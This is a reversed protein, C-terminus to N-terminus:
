PTIKAGGSQEALVQALFSALHANVLAPSELMAMHSTAPLIAMRAGPIRRQILRAASPPTSPDVEGALLLTPRRVEALRDTLDLAGVAEWLRAHVEPDDGLLTKTARDILDPRGRRTEPTFWREMSEAVVAAMGAGRLRRARDRMGARVQDPFESATGVLSLSAVQSPHELVFSQAIIGGVSIGVLHAPGGGAEDVLALLARNVIEFTWGHVDGPSRGHGPLDFAIVDHSDKLAAIQADWYTLDLGAPHILVVPAGGRPGTRVVNLRPSALGDTPLHMETM